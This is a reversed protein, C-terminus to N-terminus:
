TIIIENWTPGTGTLFLDDLLLEKKIWAVSEDTIFDGIWNLMAGSYMLLLDGETLSKETKAKLNQLLNELYKQDPFNIM